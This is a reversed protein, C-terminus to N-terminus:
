HATDVVDLVADNDDDTDIANDIGDADTDISCLPDLPCQDATDLVGDNDDDSDTCADPLGDSDTDAQDTNANLPCNDAVDAVTDNDDDTDANNGTGDNDTDASESADLPFRDTADAVGDNDDDADCANGQTDGDTNLQDGNATSLCNDYGQIVADGDSDPQAGSGIQTLSLRSGLYGINWCLTATAPGALSRACVAPPYSGRTQFRVANPTSYFGMRDVQGTAYTGMVAASLSCALVNANTATCVETTASGGDTWTVSDSAAHALGAFASLGLFSLIHFRKIVAPYVSM